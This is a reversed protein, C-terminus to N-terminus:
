RLLKNISTRLETRTKGATGDRATRLLSVLRIRESRSLGVCAHEVRRAIVARQKGEPPCRFFAFM